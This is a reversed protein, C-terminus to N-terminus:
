RGGDASGKQKGQRVTDVLMKELEHKKMLALRSKRKRQTADTTYFSSNHLYLIDSTNEWRGYSTGWVVPVTELM